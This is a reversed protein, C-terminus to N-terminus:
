AVGGVLQAVKDVMAGLAEPNVGGAQGREVLQMVQPFCEIPLEGVRGRSLGKCRFSVTRGGLAKCGSFRIIHHAQTNNSPSREGVERSAAVFSKVDGAAIAENVVVELPTTALRWRELVEDFRNHEAASDGGAIAAQLERGADGIRALEDDSWNVGGFQKQQYRFLGEAQAQREGQIRRIKAKEQNEYHNGRPLM